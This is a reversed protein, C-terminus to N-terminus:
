ISPDKETVKFILTNNFEQVLKLHPFSYLIELLNEERKSLSLDKHYIIYNLGNEFFYDTLRKQDFSKNIQLDTYLRDRPFYGHVGNFIDQHHYLAHNIYIIERSYPFIDKHDNFFILGLDSPLHLVRQHKKNAFYHSYDTPALKNKFLRPSPIINEILFLIVLLKLIFDNSIRKLSSSSLLLLGFLSIYYARSPIRFFHFFSGAEYLPKMFNPIISISKEYPGLSLILGTLFLTLGSWRLKSPSLFFGFFALLYLTYGLYAARRAYPYIFPVNDVPPHDQVRQKQKNIYYEGLENSLAEKYIPHIRSETPSFEKQYEKLTIPNGDKQILGGPVKRFLDKLDLSHVEAIFYPNWPNVFDLSQTSKLYLYTFPTVLVAFLVIFYPRLTRLHERYNMWSLTSYIIIGFMFIYSSFYLQASLWILSPVWKGSQLHILSFFLPFWFLIQLSDINAFHFQSFTFFLGLAIGVKKSGSFLEFFRASSIGNLFFILTLSFYYTHIDSRFLKEFLIFLLSSFFSTEGHLFVNHAPYMVEPMALNSTLYTGYFKSFTLAFLTDCNGLFSDNILIPSFYLFLTLLLLPAFVLQLRM